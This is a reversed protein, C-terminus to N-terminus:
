KSKSRLDNGRKVTSKGTKKNQDVPAKINQVGSAGIKGVLCNQKAM